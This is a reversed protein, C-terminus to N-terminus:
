KRDVALSESVSAANVLLAQAPFAAIAELAEEVSTVPVLEANDLYRALLRSLANGDEVVIPRPRDATAPLSPIHSREVYTSYPSFWRMMGDAEPSITEEVPLRFYFTAGQGPESELWMRGQHLEVFHKSVSLGLGSGAWHSQVSGDVQQFPKFIQDIEDASIGPGSDAVSVIIAQEEQRARM